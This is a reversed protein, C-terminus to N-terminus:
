KVEVGSLGWANYRALKRNYRQYSIPIHSQQRFYDLTVQVDTLEEILRVLLPKGSDPYVGEPFAALKMLEVGLENMEEGLKFIGRWAPEVADNSAPLIAPVEGVRKGEAEMILSRADAIRKAILEPTPQPPATKSIERPWDDFNLSKPNRYHSGPQAAPHASITPTNEANLLNEDREYSM